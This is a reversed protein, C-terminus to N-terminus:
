PPVLALLFFGRTPVFILNIEPWVRNWVCWKSDTNRRPDIDPTPSVTDETRAYWFLDKIAGTFISPNEMFALRVCLTDAPFYFVVCEYFNLVPKCAFYKVFSWPFGDNITSYHPRRLQNWHLPTYLPPCPPYYGRQGREGRVLAGSM